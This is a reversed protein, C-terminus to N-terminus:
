PPAPRAPNFALLRDLGPVRELLPLLRPPAELTVSAAREALLPLYRAFQLTDGLGRYCRVLVHRGDLPRGGWVWRRHYPQTPDDRTAPDRLAQAEEAVAWAAPYDGARMASIWRQMLDAM